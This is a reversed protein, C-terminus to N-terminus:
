NYVLRVVALITNIAKTTTLQNVPLILPTRGLYKVKFTDNESNNETQPIYDSEGEQEKAFAWEDGLETFLTNIHSIM